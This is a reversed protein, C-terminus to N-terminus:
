PCVNSHEREMAASDLGRSGEVGDKVGAVIYYAVSNVPPNDTFVASVTASTM